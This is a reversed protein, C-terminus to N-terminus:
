NNIWVFILAGVVLVICGLGFIMTRRYTRLQDAHDPYRNQILDNFSKTHFLDGLSLSINNSHIIKNLDFLKKRIFINIGFLLGLLLFVITKM